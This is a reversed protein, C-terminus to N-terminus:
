GAQDIGVEMQLFIGQAQLNHIALQLDLLFDQSLTALFPAGFVWPSIPVPDHSSGSYRPHHTDSQWHGPHHQVQFGTKKVALDKCAAHILLEAIFDLQFQDM